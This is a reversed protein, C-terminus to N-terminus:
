CGCSRSEGDSASRAKYDRVRDLRDRRRNPFYFLVPPGFSCDLCKALGRGMIWEKDSASLFDMHETFLKVCDSYSCSTRELMTADTGWFCRKTSTFTALLMNNRM